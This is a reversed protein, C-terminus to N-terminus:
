LHDRSCNLRVQQHRYAINAPRVSGKQTRTCIYCSAKFTLTLYTFQTLCLSYLIDIINQISTLTYM